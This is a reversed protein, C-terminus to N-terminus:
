PAAVAVTCPEGSRRGTGAPEWRAVGAAAAPVAHDGGPEDRGTRRRTRSGAARRITAAAAGPQIARRERKCRPGPRPAGRAAGPQDRTAGSADRTDAAPVHEDRRRKRPKVNSHVPLHLKGCASSLPLSVFNAQSEALPSLRSCLICDISLPPSM